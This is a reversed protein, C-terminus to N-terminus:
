QYLIKVFYKENALVKVEEEEVLLSFVVEGVGSGGKLVIGGVKISVGFDVGSKSKAWFNLPESEISAKFILNRSNRAEQFGVFEKIKIEIGFTSRVLNELVDILRKLDEKTEIKDKQKKPIIKENEKGEDEEFLWWFNKKNM